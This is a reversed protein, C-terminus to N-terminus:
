IEFYPYQPSLSAPAGRRTKDPISTILQSAASIAKKIQEHNVDEFQCGGAFERAMQCVLHNELLCLVLLRNFLLM